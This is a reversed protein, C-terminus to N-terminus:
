HCSSTVVHARRGQWPDNWRPRPQDGLQGTDKERGMASPATFHPAQSVYQVGTTSTAPLGPLDDLHRTNRSHCRPGLAPSPLLRSAGRRRRGSGSRRSRRRCRRRASGQAITLQVLRPKPKRERGVRRGDDLPRVDVERCAPEPQGPEAATVVSGLLPPLRNLAEHTFAARDREPPARPASWRAGERRLLVERGPGNGPVVEPETSPSTCSVGVRPRPSRRGEPAPESVHPRSPLYCACASARVAM